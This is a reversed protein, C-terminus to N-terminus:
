DLFWIEIREAAPHDRAVQAILAPFKKQLPGPRQPRGRPPDPAGEAV